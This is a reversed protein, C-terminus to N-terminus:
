KDTQRTREGLRWGAVGSQPATAPQSAALSAPLSVARRPEQKRDVSSAQRARCDSAGTKRRGPSSLARQLSFGRAIGRREHRRARHEAQLAHGHEESASWRGAASLRAQQVETRPSLVWRSWLLPRGSHAQERDGRGAILLLDACPGGGGGSDGLSASRPECNATFVARYKGGRQRGFSPDEGRGKGERGESRIM